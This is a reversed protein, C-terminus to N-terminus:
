DACASTQIEFGQHNEYPDGSYKKKPCVIRGLRSDKCFGGFYENCLRESEDQICGYAQCFPFPMILLICKSM